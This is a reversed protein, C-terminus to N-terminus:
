QLRIFKKRYRTNGFDLFCIFLFAGGRFNTVDLVLNKDHDFHMRMRNVDLVGFLYPVGWSKTNKQNLYTYGDKKLLYECWITTKRGLSDFFNFALESNSAIKLEVYGSRGFDAQNTFNSNFAEYVLEEFLNENLKTIQHIKGIAGISIPEIQYKGVDMKSSHLDTVVDFKSFTACCQLCAMVIALFFVQKLLKMHILDGIINNSNLIAIFVINTEVIIKV